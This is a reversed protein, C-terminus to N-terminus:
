SLYVTQLYILGDGPAVGVGQFRATMTPSPTLTNWVETVPNNTQVLNEATSGDQGGLIM